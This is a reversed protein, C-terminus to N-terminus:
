LGQVFAEADAKYAQAQMAGFWAVVDAPDKFEPAVLQQSVLRASVPNM